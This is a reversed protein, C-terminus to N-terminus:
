GGIEMEVLRRTHPGPLRDGRRWMVITHYSFGLRAATERLSLGNDRIWRDLRRAFAGRPTKLPRGHTTKPM